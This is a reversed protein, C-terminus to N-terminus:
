TAYEPLPNWVRQFGVGEFDKVNVTAFETVGNRLMALATRLDYARRRALGKEHLRQWLDHHLSLSDPPFGILQWRPHARFAACVEAAKPATLPRALVAPNRLLGYLELLIFESIAIDDRDQLSHLFTAAAPHATNEVDVAPLLINTDLSLM